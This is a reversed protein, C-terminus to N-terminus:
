KRLINKQQYNFVRKGVEQWPRVLRNKRALDQEVLQAIKAIHKKTTLQFSKEWSRALTTRTSEKPCPRARGVSSNECDKKQNIVSFV